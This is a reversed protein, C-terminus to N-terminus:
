SRESRGFVVHWDRHVMRGTPRLQWEFFFIGFDIWLYKSRIKPFVHDNKLSFYMPLNYQWNFKSKIAPLVMAANVVILKLRM